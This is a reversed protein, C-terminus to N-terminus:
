IEDKCNKLHSDLRKNYEEEISYGLLKQRLNMAAVEVIMALNRGPRVPIKTKYIKVDFVEEFQDDFGLREYEKKESWDEMEIILNLKQVIKVSGVGYMHKIDIIGIGRIELLHRTLPPSTCQIINDIKRMVVADDSILRHGRKILELATESKGIGSKGKILVGLGYIEMFVGHITQEPALKDELYNVLNSILKTTKDNTRLLARGHKKACYIMAQDVDMGSAVIVAPIPYSFIKDLRNIKIGGSLTNIYNTETKGIIQIRDYGFMDFFGALQLGPRILESNHLRIDKGEPIYIVELNMDKVICDIPITKMLNEEKRELFSM